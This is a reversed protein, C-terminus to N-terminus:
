ICGCIELYFQMLMEVCKKLRKMLLYNKMNVAKSGAICEKFQISHGFKECVFTMVRIAQEMIQLGIGDGPIYAISIEM